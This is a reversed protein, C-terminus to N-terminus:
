SQLKTIRYDLEKIAAETEEAYIGQDIRSSLESKLESLGAIVYERGLYEVAFQDADLEERIVQGKEVDSVRAEDYAAMEEKSRKMHSYYYHGLEHFLSTRALADGRKIGYFVNEEMWVATLDTGGNRSLCIFAYELDEIPRPDVVLAVNQPFLKSMAMGALGKEVPKRLHLVDIRHENKGFRMIQYSLHKSM